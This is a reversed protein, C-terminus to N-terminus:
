VARRGIALWYFGVTLPSSYNNREVATFKDPYAYYLHAEGISFNSAMSTSVLVIPTEEYKKKFPIEVSTYSNAPTNHASNGWQILLDGIELSRDGIIASRNILEQLLKNTADIGYSM